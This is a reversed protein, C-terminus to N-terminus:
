RLSSPLNKRANERNTDSRQSTRYACGSLRNEIEERKEAVEVEMSLAVEEAEEITNYMKVFAKMMEKVTGDEFEITVKTENEETVQGIGYIKNIAYM